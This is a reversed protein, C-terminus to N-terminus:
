RLQQAAVIRAQATVPAQLCLGIIPRYSNGAQRCFVM